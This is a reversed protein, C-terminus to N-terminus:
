SASPSPTPVPSLHYRKGPMGPGPLMRPGQGRGFGPGDFQVIRSGHDDNSVLRDGVAGAAVLVVAAAIAIGTVAAKRQPAIWPTKPPRPIPAFPDAPQAGYPPQAPTFAQPPAPQQPPVPQQPAVPQAQAPAAQQPATARQEPQSAAPREGPQTGHESDDSTTM